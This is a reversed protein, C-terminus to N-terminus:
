TQFKSVPPLKLTSLWSLGVLAASCWLCAQM